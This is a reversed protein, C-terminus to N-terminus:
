GAGHAAPEASRPRRVPSGSRRRRVRDAAVREAVYGTCAVSRARATSSTASIRWRSRRMLVALACIAVVTAAAPLVSVSRQPIPRSNAPLIRARTPVTTRNWEGAANAAVVAGCRDLDGRTVDHAMPEGAGPVPLEVVGQEDHRDGVRRRCRRARGVLSAFPRGALAVFFGEAAHFAAQGVGHGLADIRRWVGRSLRTPRTPGVRRPSRAAWCGTRGSDAAGRGSRRTNCRGAPMPGGVATPAPQVGVLLSARVSATGVHEVPASSGPM